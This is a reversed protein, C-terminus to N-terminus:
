SLNSLLKFLKGNSKSRFEGLITINYDVHKPIFNDLEKKWGLNLGLLRYLPQILPQTIYVLLTAFLKLRTQNSNRAFYSVRPDEGWWTVVLETPSNVSTWSTTILIIM